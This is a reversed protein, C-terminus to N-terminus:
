GPAGPARERRAAAQRELWAVLGQANLDLDKGLIEELETESATIGHGRALRLWLARM